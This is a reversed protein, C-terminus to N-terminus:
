EYKGGRIFERILSEQPVVSEDISCFANLGKITSEVYFYDKSQKDVQLLLQLVRTKFVCPEYEHLTTIQRDATPKFKYLYKQEGNIVDDWVDFTRQPTAGRYIDDRSMRRVLRMQRSSLLTNGEDDCVERNVSIYLKYINEKPLSQYLLPNLAHLGEVIMLGGNQINIKKVKETRKRQSFSFIPIDTEGKEVAECFCKNILAIDLSHVTEYDPEGEDNLPTKKEDLYFDDLSVVATHKCMSKLYDCLIHATTTKGSGSPGALMIIKKNQDAAIEQAVSYIENHYRKECEKVFEFVDTQVRNNIYNATLKM